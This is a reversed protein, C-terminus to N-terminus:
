LSEENHIKQMITTLTEPTFMNTRPLSVTLGSSNPTPPLGRLSVWYGCKRIVLQEESHELWDELDTPVTVVILIRPVLVDELRLDDYNGKDLFFKLVDEEFIDQGTCKLQVDVSPRRGLMKSCLTLDISDDDVNRLSVACGARSAIAYVVSRSFQEQRSTIHM